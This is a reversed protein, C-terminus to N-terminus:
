EKILRGWIRPIHKEGHSLTAHKLEKHTKCSQAGIKIFITNLSIVTKNGLIPISVPCMKTPRVITRELSVSLATLSFLSNPWINGKRRGYYSLGQTLTWPGLLKQPCLQVAAKPSSRVWGTTGLEPNPLRGILSSTTSHKLYSKRNWILFPTHQWSTGLFPPWLPNWPSSSSSEKEM